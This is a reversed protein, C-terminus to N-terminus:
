STTKLTDGSRTQIRVKKQSAALGCVNWAVLRLTGATRSPFAINVPLVRNTPQGNPAKADDTAAQKAQKARPQSGEADSQSESNDHKAALKRKPPMPPFLPLRPRLRLRALHFMSVYMPTAATNPVSIPPEFFGLPYLGATRTEM